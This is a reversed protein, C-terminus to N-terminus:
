RRGPRSGFLSSRGVSGSLLEIALLCLNSSDGLGLSFGTEAFQFDDAYLMRRLNPFSTGVTLWNAVGLFFGYALQSAAWVLLRLWWAAHLERPLDWRWLAAAVLFQAAFGVLVAKLYGQQVGANRTVGNAIVMATQRWYWARSRGSGFEELMDGALAANHRTYGLRDLLWTALKPPRRGNM